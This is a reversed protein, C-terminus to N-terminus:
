KDLRATMKALAARAATRLRLEPSKAYRELAPRDEAQGVMGLTALASVKLMVPAESQLYSRARVLATAPDYKALIQLASLKCADAQQESKLIALARSSVEDGTVLDPRASHLRDLGILATGAFIYDTDKTRERLFVLVAQRAAGDLRLSLEPLKQIVYERWIEGQKPDAFITVFTEFLRPSVGEQQLLADAANNKLAALEDDKATDADPSRLLFVLLTDVEEVSLRKGLQYSERQREDYSAQSGGTIVRVDARGSLTLMLGILAFVGIPPRRKFDNILPM